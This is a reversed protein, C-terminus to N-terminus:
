LLIEIMEIENLGILDRKFLSIEKCTNVLASVMIKRVHISSQLHLQMINNPKDSLM